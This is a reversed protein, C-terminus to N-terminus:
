ETARFLRVTSPQQQQYGNTTGMCEVVPPHLILELLDDSGQGVVHTFIHVKHHEVKLLRPWQELLYPSNIVHM